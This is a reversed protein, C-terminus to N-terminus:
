PSDAPLIRPSGRGRLYGRRPPAGSALMRVWSSGTPCGTRPSPESSNRDWRDTACRNRGRRSEATLPDGRRAVDQRGRARRWRARCRSRRQTTGSSTVCALGRRRSSPPSSAPAICRNVWPRCATSRQQVWALGTADRLDTAGRRTTFTSTSGLTGTPSTRTRPPARALSRGSSTHIRSPTGYEPDRKGMPIQPALDFDDRRSSSEADRTAAALSPPLEFSSAGTPRSRPQAPCRARPASRSWRRPGTWRRPRWCPWSIPTVRGRNPDRDHGVDVHRYVRPEEGARDRADLAEGLVDVGV